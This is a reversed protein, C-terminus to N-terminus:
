IIIYKKRTLRGIVYKIKRTRNISRTTLFFYRIHYMLKRTVYIDLDILRSLEITNIENTWINKKLFMNKLYNFDIINNNNNTNYYNIFRDIIKQTSLHHYYSFPQIYYIREDCMDNYYTNDLFCIETTKPLLTCTIFDSHTKSHRTRKLEVPENNIKFAHIITDFLKTETNLKTDFYESIMTTWLVSCQNNTYIFLKHCEGTKKKQYLYELITIIGCRLFEPYLDLLENFKILPSHNNGSLTSVGSWLIELDTFSGLTEDLDFVIVRHSAKLRPKSYHNGKYIQIYTDSNNLNYDTM